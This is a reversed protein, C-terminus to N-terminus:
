MRGDRLEEYLDTERLAAAVQDFNAILQRLDSPNQKVSQPSLPYHPDTVGLFRLIRLHQADRALHEYEIEVFPQRTQELKENLDQYFRQVRDVHSMLEHPNVEVRPRPLILDKRSYVEWQQTQRAVLESVFTKVRNRRRLVIKQVAQDRTVHDLVVDAQGLTWKFGVCSFGVGTQWINQLFRLPDRDRDILSITEAQQRHTLATFIGQPNFVEHHCLIEPHSNLLTCLLNSGTRPVALIVFRNM